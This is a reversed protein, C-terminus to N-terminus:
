GVSSWNSLLEVHGERSTKRYYTDDATILTGSHNIATVHYAADYFTVKFKKMLELAKKYIAAPPEEEFGYGALIKMLAEAVKPQKMGLINGAEFFWLSPVIVTCKGAVWADRLEIARDRDEEDDSEIVWKLLVSTDPVITATM